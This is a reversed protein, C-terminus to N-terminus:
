EKDPTESKGRPKAQYTMVLDCRLCSFTDYGTRALDSRSAQMALGCVPCSKLPPRSKPVTEEAAMGVAADTKIQILNVSFVKFIWGSPAPWRRGCRDPGVRL